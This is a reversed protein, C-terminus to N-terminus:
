GGQKYARIVISHKPEANKFSMGLVLIDYKSEPIQILEVGSVGWLTLVNKGTADTLTVVSPYTPRVSINLYRTSFSIYKSQESPNDISCCEFLEYRSAIQELETLVM